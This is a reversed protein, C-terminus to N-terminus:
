ELIDFVHLWHLDIFSPPFKSLKNAGLKMVELKSLNGIAAPLETFKPKFVEVVLSIVHGQQAYFGFGNGPKEGLKHRDNKAFLPPIPEGIIKELSEMVEAESPVLMVGHYPKM